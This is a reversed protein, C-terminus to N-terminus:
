VEKVRGKEVLEAAEARPLNKTAGKGIKGRSTHIGRGCINEVDVTTGKEVDVTTDKAARATTAKAM